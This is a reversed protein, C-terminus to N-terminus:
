NYLIERMDDGLLLSVKKIFVNFTTKTKKKCVVRYLHVIKESILGTIKM